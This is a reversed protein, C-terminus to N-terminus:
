RAFPFTVTAYTTVNGPAPTGSVIFFVAGGPRTVRFLAAVMGFLATTYVIFIVPETAFAVFVIKCATSYTKPTM